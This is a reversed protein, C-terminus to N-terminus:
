KRRRPRNRSGRSGRSAVIAVTGAVAVAGLAWAWMPVSDDRAAATMGASASQTNAVLAAQAQLAAAEKAAQAAALQAQLEQKQQRLKDEQLELSQYQNYASWASSGAQLGLEIGKVIGDFLQGMGRVQKVLGLYGSM